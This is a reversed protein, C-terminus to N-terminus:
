SAIKSIIFKRENSKLGFCFSFVIVFFLSLIATIFVIYTDNSFMQRIVLSIVISPIGVYLCPLIVNNIYGSVRFQVLKRVILLRVVFAIIGVCLHVVFVIYPEGGMKLAVYAIPVIILLIGGVVSQYVRVRGTAASATMFPNSVADIMSICLMLCVFINTYAPVDKLWLNLIPDIALMIPLILCLLLMFTFKASRFLLMHMSVLDGAAYSKMLQPNLATQFNTAFMQVASQVQVAIGRAANVAPGFFMNLLINLGQGMLTGALGGWLNWGTFSLIEKLLKKDFLWHFTAELFHRKCYFRYVLIIAGKVILLLIAYLALKDVNGIHLLYVIGLNAFAEFISIYAFASMKEHAIIDANYPFSMIVVITSIISCQYVVMAATMRNEPIVLKEWVFWLGVTEALLFVLLAIMGHTIVCTSFVKKLNYEDGKGLAITIFRQTCGSMAGNLFAFMGIFGGVVNYIGFDDIGLTSLVVRSTYLSVAMLLVMRFYLFITNKAIRTNNDSTQSM